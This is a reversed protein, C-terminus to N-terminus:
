GQEALEEPPPWDGPLANLRRIYDARATGTSTRPRTLRAMIITIVGVLIPRAMRWPLRRRAAALPAVIM